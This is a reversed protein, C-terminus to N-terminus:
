EQNVNINNRCLTSNLQCFHSLLFHVAADVRAVLGDLIHKHVVNLSPGLVAALEADINIPYPLPKPYNTRIYTHM